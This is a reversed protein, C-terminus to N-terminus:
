ALILKSTFREKSLLKKTGLSGHVLHSTKGQAPRIFPDPHIEGVHVVHWRRAAVLTWVVIWIDGPVAIKKEKKWFNIQREYISIDKRIYVNEHSM